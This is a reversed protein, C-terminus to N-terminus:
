ACDLEKVGDEAESPPAPPPTAAQHEEKGSELSQQTKQFKRAGLMGVFAGALTLAGIWLPGLEALIDMSGGVVAALLLM